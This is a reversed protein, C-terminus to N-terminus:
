LFPQWETGHKLSLLKTPPVGHKEIVVVYPYFHISHISSQFPTVSSQSVPGPPRDFHNLEHVLGSAFAAFDNIGFYGHIDECLYVGGPRLSPLMEELTIRQQEPAHGGDDIIIDVGEIRERFSKWFSRDAQDGIFVSTHDNEYAKCAQEIDVGYIHSKEGFYSRWMELSGGSYIGIELISVNKETFRAFHRHYIDFYHEWKWIGPGNKHEQFYMWLPNTSSSIPTDVQQSIDAYTRVYNCANYIPHIANIAQAFRRWDRTMTKLFRYLNRIYKKMKKGPYINKSSSLVIPERWRNESFPESLLCCGALKNYCRYWVRGYYRIPM